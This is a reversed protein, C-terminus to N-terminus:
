PEVIRLKIQFVTGKDFSSELLELDGGYRRLLQRAHFIGLGTSNKTSFSEEFIIAQLDQSIGEGSDKIKISLEGGILPEISIQIRKNESNRMAEQSNQFLNSFVQRLEESLIVVSFNSSAVPNLISVDTFQPFQALSDNLIRFPDCTFFKDVSKRLKLIVNKLSTISIVLPNLTQDSAYSAHPLKPITRNLQKAIEEARHIYVQPLGLKKGELIMKHIMPLTHTHFTKLGDIFKEKIMVDRIHNAYFILHNIQKMGDRTHHFQRMGDYLKYRRESEYRIVTYHNMLLFIAIGLVLCIYVPSFWWWDMPKINVLSTTIVFISILALMFILTHVTPWYTRFYIFANFFAVVMLFLIFRFAEQRYKQRYIYKQVFALNRGIKWAVSANEQVIYTEGASLKKEEIQYGSPFEVVVDYQKDPSVGFYSVPLRSGACGTNTMMQRYGRLYNPDGTHESEYLWIQAGLGYSNSKRGKLELKICDDRNLTNMYIRSNSIECNAVVIDLDGDQDMDELVSGISDGLENMQLCTSDKEFYEGSINWFVYNSGLTNLYLDLYGDQDLDGWNAGFALVRQNFHAQISVDTFIGWGDNQFLKLPGSRNALFLDVDGDNDYDGFAMSQTYFDFRQTLQPSRESVNKFFPINNSEQLGTHEFYLVPGFVGFLFLDLDGDNDMDSLAVHHHTLTDPIGTQHTVERFRFYGDNLLIHVSGMYDGTVADVHGDCNLDGWWISRIRGMLNFNTEDTIDRFEDGGINEYILSKGRLAACVADLDNDNDLDVFYIGSDLTDEPVSRGYGVLQRDFLVDRRNLGNRDFELALFNNTEYLNTLYLDIKQETNRFTSVGLHRSPSKTLPHMTFEVHPKKYPAGIKREGLYYIRKDKGQLFFDNQGISIPHCEFPIFAIKIRESTEIDYMWLGENEWYFLCLEKNPGSPFPTLSDVLTLNGQTYKFLLGKWTSFYGADPSFFLSQLPHDNVMGKVQWKGHNYEYLRWRPKSVVDNSMIWLYFYTPSFVNAVLSSPGGPHRINESNEGDFYILSSWIGTAIFKTSDIFAASQLTYPQPSPIEKWIDGNFHYIQSRYYGEQERVFLWINKFSFAKIFDLSFSKKPFPPNFEQWDKGGWQFLVDEGVAIARNSDIVSIEEIKKGLLEPFVRIQYSNGIQASSTSSFVTFIFLSLIQLKTFKM